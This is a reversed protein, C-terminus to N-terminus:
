PGNSVFSATISADTVSVRGSNIVSHAPSYSAGDTLGPITRPAFDSLPLNREKRTNSTSIVIGAPKGPNLVMADSSSIKLADVVETTGDVCTAIASADNDPLLTINGVNSFSAWKTSHAQAGQLFGILFITAVFLGKIGVVGFHFSESCNQRTKSILHTLVHFSDTFVVKLKQLFFGILVLGSYFNIM